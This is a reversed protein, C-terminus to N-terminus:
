KYAEKWVNNGLCIEFVMNIKREPTGEARM